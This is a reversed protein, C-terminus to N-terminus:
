SRPPPLCWRHRREDREGIGVVQANDKPEARQVDLTRGHQDLLRRRHNPLVAVPPLEDADLVVLYGEIAAAPAHEHQRVVRDLGHGRDDGAADRQRVRIV